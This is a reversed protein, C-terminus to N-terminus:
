WRGRGQFSQLAAYNAFALYGFLVAVWVSGWQFIGYAAMATAAFVSLWLSQRFGDRPNIKLLAERAIQGGDLPYIPLLNILGWAVCVLFTFNLFMGLRANQLTVWPTIGLLGGFSVQQQYGAAVVGALLVAAFFFGAAPGALAILCQGLTGAGRSRWGGSPDYSALGGFSYLTIWPYYGFARMTLAHGMEHVLISIFVVAVWTLVMVPDGLHYGLILTFLWFWPHVRVPIGLLSFNLDFQTRPPEGLLV